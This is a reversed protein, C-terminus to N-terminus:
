AEAISKREKISSYGKRKHRGKVESNLIAKEEEKGSSKQIERRYNVRKGVRERREFSGLKGRSSRYM